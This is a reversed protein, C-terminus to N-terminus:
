LHVVRCIVSPFIINSSYKRYLHLVPHSHAGLPYQSSLDESLAVMTRLWRSMERAEKDIYTNINLIQTYKRDPLNLSEPHIVCNSDTPSPNNLM